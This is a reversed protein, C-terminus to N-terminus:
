ATPSRFESWQQWVVEAAVDWSGDDAVWAAGLALQRPSFLNANKSTVALTADEVLPVPDDTTGGIVIDGHVDLRLDLSLDFPARYTLSFRLNETPTVLISASPYRVAQFDVDVASRLDTGDADEFDVQGTIDLSGKTDSLYTLGAGIYLVDPVIELALSTTLVLRQPRNDYLVFRPQREPLARLRTLRDDPLYLAVSVGIRHGWVEGPLVLGGQIGNVGDVDLDGGNLELTPDVLIYGLELRMDDLSALAAPNYYNAAFDDTLAGYTGALGVARASMGFADVPNARAPLPRALAALALLAAAGAIVRHTM